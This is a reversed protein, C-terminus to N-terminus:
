NLTRKRIMDPKTRPDTFIVSFTVDSSNDAAHKGLNHLLQQLSGALSEPSSNHADEVASFLYHLGSKISLEPGTTILGETYTLLRDDPGVEIEINGYKIGHRIGLPIGDSTLIERGSDKRVLFAPHHGASAFWAKRGKKEFLIAVGTLLADNYEDLCLADNIKSLLDGPFEAAKAANFDDRYVRLYSTLMMRVVQVGKNHGAVDGLFYLMYDPSIEEIFLVDGGVGSVPRHFSMLRWNNIGSKPRPPMTIVPLPPNGYGELLNEILPDERNNSAERLNVIWYGIWGLRVPKWSLEFSKDIGKVCTDAHSIWRGQSAPNLLDNAVSNLPPPFEIPFLDRFDLGLVDDRVRDLTGLGSENVHVIKGSSQAVVVAPKSEPIRRIEPLSKTIVGM